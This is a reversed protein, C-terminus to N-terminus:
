VKLIKAQMRAKFNLRLVTKKQSKQENSINIFRKRWDSFFRATYFNTGCSLRSEDSRYNIKAVLEERM